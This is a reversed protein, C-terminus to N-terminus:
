GRRLQEMMKADIGGEKEKAGVGIALALAMATVFLKRM